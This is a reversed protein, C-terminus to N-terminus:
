DNKCGNGIWKNLQTIQCSTLRPSGYPPMSAYGSHGLLSGMLRGNIAVIQVGAHNSLDIQASANYGSHCGTCNSLIKSVAGSYSFVNSDCQVVCNTGNKAGAVIWSKLYSKQEWTLAGNPPMENEQIVEWIESDNPNGPKIGKSLIATYNSLDYEDAHTTADHCGSMACNSVFIPLIDREFCISDGNITDLNEHKCASLFLSTFLIGSLLLTGFLVRNKIM